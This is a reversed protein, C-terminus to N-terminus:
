LGTGTLSWDSVKVPALLAIGHCHQLYCYHNIEQQQLRLIAWLYHVTVEKWNCEMCSLDWASVAAGLKWEGPLSQPHDLIWQFLLTQLPMEWDRVEPIGHSRKWLGYASTTNGPAKMILSRLQHHYLIAVALLLVSFVGLLIHQKGYLM